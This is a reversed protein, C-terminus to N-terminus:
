WLPSGCSSPGGASHLAWTVDSCVGPSRSLLAHWSGSSSLPHSFVRTGGMAEQSAQGRGAWLLASSEQQRAFGQPQCPQTLGRAGEDDERHTLLLQLVPIDPGCDCTRAAALMLSVPAPAGHPLQPQQPTRGQGGAGDAKRISLEDWLQSAFGEASSAASCLGQKNGLRQGRISGEHGHSTAAVGETGTSGWLLSLKCLM